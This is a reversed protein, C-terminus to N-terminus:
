SAKLKIGEITNAAQEFSDMAAEMNEIAVRWKMLVIPDKEKTFIERINKVYIDDGQGELTHIAV